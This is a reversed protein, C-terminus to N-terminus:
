RWWGFSGKNGKGKPFLIMTTWNLEASVTGKRFTLKEMSVWAEWRSREPNNEWTAERFWMKLHEEQMGLTGVARGTHIGRVSAVIEEESPLRYMVVEPQVLM